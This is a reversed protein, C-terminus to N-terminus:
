GIRWKYGKPAPDPAYLRNLNGANSWWEPDDEWIMKGRPVVKKYPYPHNFEFDLVLQRSKEKDSVDSNVIFPHQLAADLTMCGTGNKCLLRQIFDKRKPGFKAFAEELKPDLTYVFDDDRATVLAAARMYSYIVSALAFGDNHANSVDVDKSEKCELPKFLRNGVCGMMEKDLSAAQGLDILRATPRGNVTSIMVNMPSIDYHGYGAKHLCHIGELIDKALKSGRLATQSSGSAEGKKKFRNPGERNVFSVLDGGDVFESVVAMGNNNPLTYATPIIVHSCYQEINPIDKREKVARLKEGVDIEVLISQLSDPHDYRSVGGPLKIVQNTGWRYVDGGNGKALFAGLSQAFTPSMAKLRNLWEVNGPLPDGRRRQLSILTPAPTLHNGVTAAQVGASLAV